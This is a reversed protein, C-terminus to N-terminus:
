AAAQKSQQRQRETWVESQEGNIWEGDHIVRVLGDGRMLRLIGYGNPKDNRWEGDYETWNVLEQASTNEGVVGYLYPVTRYLGYGSREGRYIDGNPMGMHTHTWSKISPEVEGSYWKARNMTM